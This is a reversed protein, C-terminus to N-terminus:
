THIISHYVDTPVRDPNSEGLLEASHVTQFLAPELGAECVM